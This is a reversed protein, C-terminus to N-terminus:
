KCMPCLGLAHVLLGLGYLLLAGGSVLHATMGDLSGLAFALFGGGAALVFVGGLTACMGCM